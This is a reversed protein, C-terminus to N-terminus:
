KLIMMKKVAYHKGAAIRYVYLGSALGSANFKVDYYGAKQKKNVLTAVKQGLTNFIELMANATEPIQYRITTLPNFPNPFNQELVFTKPPMFELIIEKDWTNGYKDQILFKLTDKQNVPADRHIDFVFNVDLEQGSKINKILKSEQEFKLPSSGKVLTVNVQDAQNNISENAITLSIQNNKTGPTVQYINEAFNSSSFTLIIIIVLFVKQM